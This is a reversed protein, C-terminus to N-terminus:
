CRYYLTGSWKWSQYGADHLIINYANRRYCYSSSGPYKVLAFGTACYRGGPKYVPISNCYMKGDVCYWYCLAFMYSAAEAVPAGNEVADPVVVKVVAPAEPAAVEVATSGIVGLTMLGVAAAVLLAARRKFNSM